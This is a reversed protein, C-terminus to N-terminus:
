RFQVTVKSLKSLLFFRATDNHYHSMAFFPLVPVYSEEQNTKERVMNM